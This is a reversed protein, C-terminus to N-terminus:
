SKEKERKHFENPFMALVAGKTWDEPCGADLALREGRELSYCM